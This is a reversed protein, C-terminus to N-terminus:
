DAISNTPKKIQRWVMVGLSVLWLFGIAGIRAKIEAASWKMVTHPESSVWEPQILRFPCRQRILEAGTWNTSYIGCLSISSIAYYVAVLALLTVTLVNIFLQARM